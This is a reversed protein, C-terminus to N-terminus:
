LRTQKENPKQPEKINESSGGKNPENIPKNDESM